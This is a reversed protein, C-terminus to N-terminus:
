ILLRYQRLYKKKSFYKAIIHFDSSNEVSTVVLKPNIIKIISILYNLKLSRKYFNKIIFFLSDKLFFFHKIRNHRTSLIFYKNKPVIKLLDYTNECDFIIVDKRKPISFIIKIRTLISFFIIFKRKLFFIKECFFFKNVKKYKKKLYYNEMKKPVSIIETRSPTFIDVTEM